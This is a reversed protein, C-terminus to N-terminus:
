TCASRARSGRPRPASRASASSCCPRTACSASRSQGPPWHRERQDRLLKPLDKAFALLGFIAFEALPGAHVGSSTTVTLGDLEDPPSRLAAGFQEGAGANRAQVWELRPARRVLDVLGEGTSGPIGFVVEARELAHQWRPDDLPVGGEGNADSSWRATPLM